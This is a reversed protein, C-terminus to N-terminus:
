SRVLRVKDRWMPPILFPLLVAFGVYLWLQWRLPDLRIAKGLM